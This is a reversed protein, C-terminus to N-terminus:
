RIERPTSPPDDPLEPARTNAALGPIRASSFRIQHPVPHVNARFTGGGLHGGQSSVSQCRPINRYLQANSLSVFLSRHVCFLSQGLSLGRKKYGYILM